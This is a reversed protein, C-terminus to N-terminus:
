GTFFQRRLNMYATLARPDRLPVIKGWAWDALILPWRVACNSFFEELVGIQPLGFFSLWVHQIVGLVDFDAFILPDDKRGWACANKVPERYSSYGTLINTFTLLEGPICRELESRFINLSSLGAPPSGLMFVETWGGGEAEHESSFKQSADAQHRAFNESAIPLLEIQCYDDEHFYTSPEETV